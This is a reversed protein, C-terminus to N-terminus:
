LKGARMMVRATAAFFVAIFPLRTGVAGFGGALFGFLFVIHNRLGWRGVGVSFFADCVCSADGVRDSVSERELGSFNNGPVIVDPEGRPAGNRSCESRM